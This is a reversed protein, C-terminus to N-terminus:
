KLVESESILAGATDITLSFPVWFVGRGISLAEVLWRVFGYFDMRFECEASAYLDAVIEDMEKQSNSVTLGKPFYKNFFDLGEDCAHNEELFKKTIKFTRYKSKKSSSM